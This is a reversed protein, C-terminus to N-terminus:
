AQTQRIQPDPSQSPSTDPSSRTVPEDGEAIIADLARRKLTIDESDSELVRELIRLRERRSSDKPSLRRLAIVVAVVSGIAIAFASLSTALSQLSLGAQALIVIMLMVILLVALWDFGGSNEEEVARTPPTSSKADDQWIM